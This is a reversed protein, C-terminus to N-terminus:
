FHQSVIVADADPSNVVGFGRLHHSEERPLGAYNGYNGFACFSLLRRKAAGNLYKGVATNNKRIGAPLLEGRKDLELRNGACHIVRNQRSINVGQVAAKKGRLKDIGKYLIVVGMRAQEIAQKLENLICALVFDGTIPVTYDKRIQYQELQHQEILNAQTGEEIIAYIASIAEIGAPLLNEEAIVGFPKHAPIALPRERIFNSQSDLRGFAKRINFQKGM